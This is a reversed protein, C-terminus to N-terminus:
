LLGEMFGRRRVKPKGTKRTSTGTGLLYGIGGSFGGSSKKTVGFMSNSDQTKRSRAKAQAILSKQQAIGSKVIMIELKRKNRELSEKQHRKHAEKGKEVLAKAGEYNKKAGTKFRQYLGVKM